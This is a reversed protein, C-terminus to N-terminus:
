AIDVGGPVVLVFPATQRSVRAAHHHKVVAGEAKQVEQGQGQGQAQAEGGEGEQGEEQQGDPCDLLFVQWIL